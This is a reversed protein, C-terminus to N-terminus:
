LQVEVNERINKVPVESLSSTELRTKLVMSPMYIYVKIEVKARHLDLFNDLFM